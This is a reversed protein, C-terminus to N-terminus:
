SLYGAAQWQMRAIGPKVIDSHAGAVGTGQSITESAEVNTVGFSALAPVGGEMLRADHAEIGRAGFAGIAGYKPWSSGAWTIQGTVGAAFPYLWGVARDHVSRTVCVPGAVRLGAYYGHQGTGAADVAFSWHSMAGQVLVLSDAPSPLRSAVGCAVLCGFSHGMLHLRVGPKQWRVVAEAISGEGFRRARDKMMWFSLGRLPALLPNAGAGFSLEAQYAAEPDFEARDEFGLALEQNLCRYADAVDPPLAEPLRGVQAAELVTDLAKAASANLALASLESGKGPEFTLEQDGFPLSPWHLGVYMPRVEAPAFEALNSVWLGYQQRAAPVDGMWGHAFVFLDTPTEERLRREVVSTMRGHPDDDRERGERDFAVLYYEGGEFQQVPM